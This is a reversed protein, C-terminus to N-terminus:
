YDTPISALVKNMRDVRPALRMAKAM